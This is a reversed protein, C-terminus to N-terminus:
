SLCTSFMSKQPRQLCQREISVIGTGAPTILIIINPWLAFMGSKVVSVNKQRCLCLSQLSFGVIHKEEEKLHPHLIDDVNNVLFAM